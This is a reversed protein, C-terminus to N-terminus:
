KMAADLAKTVQDTIDHKGSAYLITNSPVILDYQGSKAVSQIIEELKELVPQVHREQLKRIEQNAEREKTGLEASKKQFDSFKQQKVTDSWASSKKEIEDRMTVLSDKDKKFTSDYSKMKQEIISQAKKGATSTTLVKQMNVVGIKLEAAQASSFFGSFSFVAVACLGSVIYKFGNM